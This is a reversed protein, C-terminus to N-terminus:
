GRVVGAQQLLKWIREWVEEPRLANAEDDAWQIASEKLIAVARERM